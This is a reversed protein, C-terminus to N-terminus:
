KCRKNKNLSVISSNGSFIGKNGKGPANNSGLLLSGSLINSINAFKMSLNSPPSGVAEGSKSKKKTAAFGM